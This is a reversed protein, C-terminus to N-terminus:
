SRLFCGGQLWLSSNGTHAPMVSFIDEDMGCVHIFKEKSISLSHSAWVGCACFHMCRHCSFWCLGRDSLSDGMCGFVAPKPSADETNSARPRSSQASHSVIGATYLTFCCTKNYLAVSFIEFPRANFKKEKSTCSCKTIEEKAPPLQSYTM